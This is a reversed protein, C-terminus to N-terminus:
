KNSKVDLRTIITSNRVMSTSMFRKNIVHKQSQSVLLLLDRTRCSVFRKRDSIETRLHLHCQVQNTRQRRFRKRKISLSTFERKVRMTTLDETEREERGRVTTSANEGRRTTTAKVETLSNKLGQQSLPKRLLRLLL